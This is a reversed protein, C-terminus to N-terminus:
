IEDSCQVSVKNASRNVVFCDKTDTHCIVVDASFWTLEIVSSGPYGADIFTWSTVCVQMVGSVFVMVYGDNLGVACASNYKFLNKKTETRHCTHVTLSSVKPAYEQPLFDRTNLTIREFNSSKDTQELAIVVISSFDKGSVLLLTVIWTQESVVSLIKSNMQFECDMKSEASGPAEPPLTDCITYESTETNKELFNKAFTRLRNNYVILVRPGYAFSCFYSTTMPLTCSFEFFTVLKVSSSTHNKSSLNLVNSGTTARFVCFRKESTNHSQSSDSALIFPTTIGSWDDTVIKMDEIHWQQKTALETKSALQDIFAARKPDYKYSRLLNPANNKFACVLQDRYALIKGEMAKDNQFM